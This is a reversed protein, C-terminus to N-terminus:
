RTGYIGQILTKFEQVSRIIVYMHGRAQVKLAFAMQEASQVGTQTKMEIFIICGSAILELDSVGAVVGMSKAVNGAIRNVSNNNNAHLMGREAPYTNHFWLVCEAQIQQETAM